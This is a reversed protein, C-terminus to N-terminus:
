AYDPLPHGAKFEAVLSRVVEHRSGSRSAVRLQRQYGAGHRLIDGVGALENECGLRRAVPQWEDVLRRIDDVVWRENNDRDAIFQAALGYRAARWKNERVHWPQLPEICEGDQVRQVIDDTACQVFAAVSGVEALNSLGDAVRNEVTGYRAAPRIDWHLDQLTSFMGTQLCDDVYREYEDWTDFQEPLGATPLQAFMMARSSAYGTNVGSWWPSSASIAQVHPLLRLQGRVVQLALERDPVGVHVHLGYILMQRGWWQSRDVIRQYRPDPSVPQTEPHDFPHTGACMLDLGLPDAAAAVASALEDLEAVADAVRAHVGTVLEVTNLLMEGTVRGGHSGHLDGIAERVRAADSVLAGTSRDVLAVEWELGITSRESRAFEIDM